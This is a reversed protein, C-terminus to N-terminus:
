ELGFMALHQRTSYGLRRLAERKDADNLRHLAAAAGPHDARWAAVANEIADTDSTNSVTRVTGSVRLLGGRCKSLLLLPSSSHRTLRTGVGGSPNATDIQERVDM